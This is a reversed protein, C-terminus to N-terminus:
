KYLFVLLLLVLRVICLCEVPLVTSRLMQSTRPHCYHETQLSVVFETRDDPIINYFDDKEQTLRRRALDSDVGSVLM